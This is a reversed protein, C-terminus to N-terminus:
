KEDVGFVIHVSYVPGHHFGDKFAYYLDEDNLKELPDHEKAKKEFEERAEKESQEGFFCHFFVIQGEWTDYVVVACHKM